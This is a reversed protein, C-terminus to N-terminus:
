SPKQEETKQITTFFYEEIMNIIKPDIDTFEMGFGTPYTPKKPKHLSNEWTVRGRAAVIIKREQVHLTFAFDVPNDPIIDHEAAVFLGGSSIDTITGIKVEGNKIYEIIGSYNVRLRRREFDSLCKRGKDLFDNRNIPKTIYDDCGSNRCILEDEKKGATTVMIIPIDKTAPDAKLAACCTSGDMIPMNLDLYILDPWERHVISIAEAGNSAVIVDVPLNKLFTKELELLLRVDDVLLVKKRTM